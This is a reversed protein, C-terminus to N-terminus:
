WKFFMIGDHLLRGRVGPAPWPDFVLFGCIGFACVFGAYMGVLLRMINVMEWELRNNVWLVSFVSFCQYRVLAFDPWTFLGLLLVLGFFTGLEGIVPQHTIVFVLENLPPM